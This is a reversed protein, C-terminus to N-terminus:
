QSHVFLYVQICVNTFVHLQRCISNVYVTDFAKNLKQENSLWAKSNNEM